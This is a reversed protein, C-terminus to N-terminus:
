SPLRKIDAKQSKVETGLAPHVPYTTQLELRLAAASEVQGNVELWESITAMALGSLYPQDTAFQAPVHIMSVLGAQQQGKGSNRLWSQGIAYRAWALTWPQLSGLSGTLKDRAVSRLSDNASNAHVLMQLLLVGPHDAAKGLPTESVESRLLQQVAQRYLGSMAAIVSDDNARYDSLERQLNTLGPTIAFAPPLTICLSTRQDILSPLPAYSLTTQKARLLRATELAPIVAQDNAQRALRCRMLGEAVVLATENTQGRYREFYKTLIPEAMAYDGREIRSRARWMDMAVALYRDLKPDRFDMDVSRVRDWSLVISAGGSEPSIGIGADDIAMIRGQVASEGGRREITDASAFTCVCLLVFACISSHVVARALDNTSKHTQIKTCKRNM